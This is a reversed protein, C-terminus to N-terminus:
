SSASGSNELIQEGVHDTQTKKRQMNSEAQEWRASGVAGKQPRGFTHSGRRLSARVDLCRSSGQNMLLVTRVKSARIRVSSMSVCVTSEALDSLNLTM